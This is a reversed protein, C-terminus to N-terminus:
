LRQRQLRNLVDDSVISASTTVCQRSVSTAVVSTGTTALCAMAFRVGLVGLALLTEAAVFKVVSLVTVSEHSVTPLWVFTVAVTTTRIARANGTHHESPPRRAFALQTAVLAVQHQNLLSQPREFSSPRLSLGLSTTFM